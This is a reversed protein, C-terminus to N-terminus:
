YGRIWSSLKQANNKIHDYVIWCPEKEGRDPGWVIRQYLGIYEQESWSQNYNNETSPFLAVNSHSKYADSLGLEWPIWNSDKSNTTVFLVFRDLKRITERLIKATEQSPTSPLRSDGSDIYISGGHNQLVSMVGMLLEEDKSSHSLFINKDTTSAHKRLFSSENLTSARLFDEKFRRLDDFTAFRHM